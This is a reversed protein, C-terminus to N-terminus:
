DGNAGSEPLRKGAFIEAMAHGVARAAAEGKRVVAPGMFPRPPMKKTGFEHHEAIESTSGIDVTTDGVTHHISERLEGTRLLPEDLYYGKSTRDKITSESLSEWASFEGAAGQYHGIYSKAEAELIRGAKELGPRLERRLRQSVIGLHAALGAFSNFGQTM